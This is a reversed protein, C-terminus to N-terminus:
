AQYEKLHVFCCTHTGWLLFFYWHHSVQCRDYVFHYRVWIISGWYGVFFDICEDLPEKIFQVLFIRMELLLCHFLRLGFQYQFRLLLQLYLSFCDHLHQPCWPWKHRLLSSDLIMDDGHLPEILPLLVNTEIGIGLFFRFLCWLLLFIFLWLFHPMWAPDIRVWLEVLDLNSGLNGHKCMILQVIDLNLGRAFYLFVKNNHAILDPAVKIFDIAATIDWTVGDLDWCVLVLVLFKHNLEVEFSQLNIDQRTLCLVQSQPFGWTNKYRALCCYEVVM